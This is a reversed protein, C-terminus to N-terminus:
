MSPMMENAIKDLQGRMSVDIFQSAGEGYRITFGALLNPDIVPKLKVNKAGTLEQIKQAIQFQQENELQEASAVVAVQTDTKECYLEDFAEIIDTIENIRGKDVLLKLFNTTTAQFAQESGEACIKEVIKKKASSLVTPNKLFTLVEDTLVKELTGVNDNIADLQSSAMATELLASAYGQAVESGKAFTTVVRARSACGASRARIAVSQGKFAPKKFAVPQRAVVASKMLSAM